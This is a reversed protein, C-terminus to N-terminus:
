AVSSCDRCTPSWQKPFKNSAHQALYNVIKETLMARKCVQCLTLETKNRIVFGFHTLRNCFASLVHHHEFNQQNPLYEVILISQPTAHWQACLRHWNDELIRYEPTYAHTRDVIWQPLLYYAYELLTNPSDIAGIKEIARDREDEPLIDALHADTYM